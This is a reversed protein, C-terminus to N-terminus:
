ITPPDVKSNLKRSNTNMVNLYLSSFTFYLSFGHLNLEQMSKKHATFNKSHFFPMSDISLNFIDAAKKIYQRFDLYNSWM